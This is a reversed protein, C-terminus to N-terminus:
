GVLCEWRLLRCGLHEDHRVDWLPGLCSSRMWDPAGLFWVRDSLILCEQRKQPVWIKNQNGLIKSERLFKMFPYDNSNEGIGHWNTPTPTASQFTYKELNHRSSPTWFSYISPPLHLKPSSFVKYSSPVIAGRKSQNWENFCKPNQKFRRCKRAIVM